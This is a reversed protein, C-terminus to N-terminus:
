GTVPFFREGHRDLLTRLKDYAVDHHWLDAAKVHKVDKSGCGFGFVDFDNHHGCKGAFVLACTAFRETCVTIKDFGLNTDFIDNTGNM